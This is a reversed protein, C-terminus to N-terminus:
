HALRRRCKSLDKSLKINTLVMKKIIDELKKFTEENLEQNYVEAYKEKVKQEKREIIDTIEEETFLGERISLLYDKEIGDEYWIAMKFNNFNQEAYRELFDLSRYATMAAKTDYGYKEVLHKSSDTGKKIQKMKTHKTGICADFLRKLNMRAIDEKMNLIDNIYMKMWGSIETNVRMDESFLVEIYNINSKWLLQLLKRIDYYTIDKEETIEPLISVEKKHFLEHFTPLLFSCYDYDSEKVALNYNHSGVLSDFLKVYEM